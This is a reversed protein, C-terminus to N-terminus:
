MCMSHTHIHQGNTGPCGMHEERPSTVKGAGLKGRNGTTRRIPSLDQRSKKRQKPM